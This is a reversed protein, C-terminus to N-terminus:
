ACQNFYSFWSFTSFSVQSTFHSEHGSLRLKFSNKHKDVNSMFAFNRSKFFQINKTFINLFRASKLVVTVLITRYFSM